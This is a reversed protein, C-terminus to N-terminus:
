SLPLYACFGRKRNTRKRTALCSHNLCSSRRGRFYLYSSMLLRSGSVLNSRLDGRRRGKM